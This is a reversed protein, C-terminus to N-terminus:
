DPDLSKMLISEVNSLPALVSLFERGMKERVSVRQICFFFSLSILGVAGGLPSVITKCNLHEYCALRLLINKPRTQIRIGFEGNMPQLDSIYSFCRFM